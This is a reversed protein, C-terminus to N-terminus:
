FEEIHVLAIDLIATPILAYTYFELFAFYFAVNEGFYNRIKHIDRPQFISRISKFWDHEILKIEEKDHLPFINAVFDLSHLID